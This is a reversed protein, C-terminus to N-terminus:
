PRLGLTKMRRWLTSRSIGLLKAAEALRGKTMQLAQRIEGASDFIPLAIGHAPSEVSDDDQMMRLVFGAEIRSRRNVAVVREVTNQLERVNGPWDHKKLQDLAEPSWRM